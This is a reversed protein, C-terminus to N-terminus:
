RVSDFSSPSKRTVMAASERSSVVRKRPSSRSSFPTWGTQLDRRASADLAEDVRVGPLSRGEDAGLDEVPVLEPFEAEDGAVGPPLPVELPDVEVGEV